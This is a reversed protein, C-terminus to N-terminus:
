VSSMPVDGVALVARLSERKGAPENQQNLAVALVAIRGLESWDEKKLRLSMKSLHRNLQSDLPVLKEYLDGENDTNPTQLHHSVSM